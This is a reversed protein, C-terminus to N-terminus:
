LQYLHNLNNEVVFNKYVKYAEEETKFYGLHKEKGNLFIRSVFPKSKNRNCKYVGKYQSTSTEKKTQKNRLNEGRTVWRLNEVRNDKRNRNLHDIDMQEPNDPLDLWYLGVLRHINVATKSGDDKWLSAVSYISGTPKLIRGTLDNRINGINSVSYRNYETIKRWEEM